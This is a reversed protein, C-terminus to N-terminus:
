NGAEAPTTQNAASYGRARCIPPNELSAEDLSPKSLSAKQRGGDAPLVRIVAMMGNDEHDVLHCHFPIDGALSAPFYLKIRIRGPRIPEDKSLLGMARAYPVTVVDLLPPDAVPKGDVELLRFHVQHIHFAHLENTWNEVVWEETAGAEVTIAPPDGMEFTKLMAGPKREAIYFDTEDDEGPRPYEAFAIIRQRDTKRSILGDFFNHRAYMPVPVPVPSAPAQASATTPSATIVALRREPVRDGACGTDVSHTVLYAKTGAPPAAVLFEIRGAPPVFQALTTPEAPLPTGADDTLPAGDRAVVDLPLPNGEPDVIALDLFADTAANVLRWLQQKGPAIEYQALADDLPTAVPVPTGNLSIADIASNRNCLLEHATDIKTAPIAAGLPSATGSSAAGPTTPAASTMSATSATGGDLDQTQRVILVRDDIGAARRADDEPGEVVIAGSLGMLMQAQVEGHLHPHYWYLGAPMDAPVHYHYTLSHRGCRTSGAAPDACGMLVEDQPAVPPVAFGHVHLNTAGTAHHHQGAIVKYFGAMDPVPGNAITLKGATTVADIASPDSIENDLTISLDDGQRLRIVPADASGAAVYCLRGGDQRVKLVIGDRTAHM